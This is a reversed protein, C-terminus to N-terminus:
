GVVPTLSERGRAMIVAGTLNFGCGVLMTIRERAAAISHCHSADGLGKIGKKGVFGDGVKIVYTIVEYMPFNKKKSRSMEALEAPTKMKTKM